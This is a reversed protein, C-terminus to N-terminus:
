DFCGDILSNPDNALAIRTLCAINSSRLHHRMVYPYKGWSGRDRWRSYGDTGPINVWNVATGRDELEHIWVGVAKDEVWLMHEAPVDDDLIQDVLKRGLIYGPGGEMSKPYTENPYVDVPEYFQSDKERHPKAVGGPKPTEVGMYSMELSKADGQTRAKIEDCLRGRAVFTDDDVKMFLQETGRRDRYARMAALTKRTLLGEGYGEKCDLFLLDGFEDAEKKLAEPVQGGHTCIAFNAVLDEWPSQVAKSLLDVSDDDSREFFSDASVWMERLVSRTKAASERSFVAVFMSPCQPEKRQTGNTASRSGIKIALSPWVSVIHLTASVVSSLVANSYFKM